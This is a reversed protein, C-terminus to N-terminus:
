YLVKPSNHANLTHLDEASSAPRLVKGSSSGGDDLLNEESAKRAGLKKRAKLPGSPSESGTNSESQTPTHQHRNSYCIIITGYIYKNNYGNMCVIVTHMDCISKHM